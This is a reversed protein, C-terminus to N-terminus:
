HDVGIYYIRGLKTVQLLWTNTYLVVRQNLFEPQACHPHSMERQEKIDPVEAPILVTAPAQIDQPQNSRHTEKEEDGKERERKGEDWVTEECPQSPSQRLM